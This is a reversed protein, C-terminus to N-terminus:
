VLCTCFCILAHRVVVGGYSPSTSSYDYMGGRAHPISYVILRASCWAPASDYYLM